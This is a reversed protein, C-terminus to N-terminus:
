FIALSHIATCYPFTPYHLHVFWEGGSKIIDKSRDTIHMFGEANITAVDGTRFWGDVDINCQSSEDNTDKGERDVKYYGRTIQIFSFACIITM